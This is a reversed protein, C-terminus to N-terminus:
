RTVPELSEISIAQDAHLPEALVRGILEGLRDPGIGGGPKKPVLDTAVLMHGAPLNATAVLSKTFLRRLDASAEAVEDKDIAFELAAHVFEAGEVLEQLQEVTLSAVVDPGFMRRSLTVHVEVISAGLAVAALGAYTTASHDSLGVPCGYRTRLQDLVNLGVQEPSTPYATTCQLVAVPCGAARVLEVAADIESWPSMGTSLLVPRGTGAVERLLAVNAIEGSSVKWAAVDLGELLDVAPSSFPSSMFYLGSEVAHDRLGRWQDDSFEMRRWYEYRSSDQPSFRVRWPENPTSEAAAIHTQFKVADAGTEAIADIFAHATGLSGDHSQAVEGIILPHGSSLHAAFQESSM